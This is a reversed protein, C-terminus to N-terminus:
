GFLKKMENNCEMIDSHKEPVYLHLGDTVIDVLDIEDQLAVICEFQKMLTEALADDACIAIESQHDYLHEFVDLCRQCTVVLTGKVHLSLLYYDGRNLVSFDGSLECPSTIREPLREKLHIVFQKSGAERADNKLSIKMM